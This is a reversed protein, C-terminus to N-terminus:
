RMARHAWQGPQHDYISNTRARQVMERAPSWGYYFTQDGNTGAMDITMTHLRQGGDYHYDRRTGNGYGVSALHGRGNYSVGALYQGNHRAQIIRNAADYSYDVAYGDPYTLRDMRGAYDYRYSVPLQGNHTKETLRGLADYSYALTVGLSTQTVRGGVDYLYTRTGLGPIVLSKLQGISDYGMVLTQGNRRRVQTADGM